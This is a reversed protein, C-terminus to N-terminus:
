LILILLYSLFILHFLICYVTRTYQIDYKKKIILFIEFGVSLFAQMNKRLLKKYDCDHSHSHKDRQSSKVRKVVPTVDDWSYKTHQLKIKRQKRETYSTFTDMSQLNDLIKSKINPFNHISPLKADCEDLELINSKTLHFDISDFLSINDHSEKM